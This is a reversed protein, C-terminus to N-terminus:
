RDVPLGVDAEDFRPLRRPAQQQTLAAEEATESDGEAAVGLAEGNLVEVDEILPEIKHLCLPRGLTATIGALGSTDSGRGIFVEDDPAGDLQQLHVTSVDHGAAIFADFARRGLNEDLKFRM